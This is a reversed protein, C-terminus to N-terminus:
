AELWTHEDVTLVETRMFVPAHLKKSRGAIQKLSLLWISPAAQSVLEQAQKVLPARTAPEAIEQAREILDDVKSDCFGHTNGGTPRFNKCGYRNLIAETATIGTWADQWMELPSKTPDMRLFELYKAFEVTEIKIDVGIVRLQQQVAQQLEFDKVYTGKPGVLTASFGNPYGAQTLLAKAKAVDYPFGPMPAYGDGGQPVPGGLVEATGLYLNKVISEKDIAHNLAQRVRLDSFPKKMVAMGMFLHRITTVQDAALAAEGQVRALQEPNLRIALQVDGSQLAILRAEPETVPRITVKDLYAKDGWYDDNRVVSIHDDKIWELFKFPGTGVANRSLDKGFKAIAAPSVMALAQNATLRTLFYADVFKTTFRVTADDIVEVRDIVPAYIGQRLPKDPGLLRDVNTKVAAANFPTGDHFKVGPRLKFTWTKGTTEWSLALQPKIELTPTYAVLGEYMMAAVNTSVTDGISPPDLTVVEASNAFTLTGGRRPTIVPPAAPAGPACAVITALGAAGACLGTVKLLTRRTLGMTLESM